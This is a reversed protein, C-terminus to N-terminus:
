ISVSVYGGASRHVIDETGVLGTARLDRMEHLADEPTICGVMLKAFVFFGPSTRKVTNVCDLRVKFSTLDRSSFFAMDIM